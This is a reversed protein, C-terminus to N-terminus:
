TRGASLRNPPTLANPARPLPTDHRARASPLTDRCNDQLLRRHNYVITTSDCILHRHQNGEEISSERHM